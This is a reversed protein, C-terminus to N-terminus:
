LGPLPGTVDSTNPQTGFSNVEVGFMNAISV